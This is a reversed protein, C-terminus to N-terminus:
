VWGDSEPAGPEAKGHVNDLRGRLYGPSFLAMALLAVAGVIMFVVILFMLNSMTM